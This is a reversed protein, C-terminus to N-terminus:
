DWFNLEEPSYLDWMEIDDYNEFFKDAFKKGTKKEYESIEKVIRDKNRTYLDDVQKKKDNQTKNTKNLKENKVKRKAEEWRKADRDNSKDLAKGVRKNGTAAYLGALASSRASSPQHKSKAWKRDSSTIRNNRRVGWKMGKVGYHM